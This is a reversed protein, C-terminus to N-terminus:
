RDGITVEIRLDKKMLVNKEAGLADEVVFIKTTENHTRETFFQQASNFLATGKAETALPERNAGKEADSASFDITYDVDEFQAAGDRPATRGIVIRDKNGRRLTYTSNFLVPDLQRSLMGFSLNEDMPEISSAVTVDGISGDNMATFRFKWDIESSATEGRQQTRYVTLEVPVGGGQAAETVIHMRQTSTTPPVDKFGDNGSLTKKITVDYTKNPLFRSQATQASAAAMGIVTLITFFLITQFSRKM